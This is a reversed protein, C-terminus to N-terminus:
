FNNFIMEAYKQPKDMACCEQKWADPQGYPFVNM